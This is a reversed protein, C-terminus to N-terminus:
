RGHVWGGNKFTFQQSGIFKIQGERFLSPKEVPKNSQIPTKLTGPVNPIAKVRNELNTTATNLSAKIENLAKDFEVESQGSDLRAGADTAATGESESIAGSGKLDAFAQLFTKGKIQKLLVSFDRESTGPLNEMFNPFGVVGLKGPHKLAQDIVGIMEQSLKLQKPLAAIDEAQKQGAATGAAKDTNERVTTPGYGIGSSAQAPAVEQLPAYLKNGQEQQAILGSIADLTMPNNMDLKMNPDIGSRQAANKILAQTDNENPPSWTSIIQALTNINRSAYTKLQNITKAKGEEYSGFSQFDNSGVKRMNTTNNNGLNVDGKSAAPQTSKTANPDPLGRLRWRPIQAKTGDPLPVEITKTLDIINALEGQLSVDNPGKVAINGDGLFPWSRGTRTDMKQIGDKGLDVSIVYPDPINAPKNHPALMSLGHVALAPDPNTAIRAALERESMNGGLYGSGKQTIMNHSSLPDASERYGVEPVGILQRLQETADAQQKEKRRGASISALESLSPMEPKAVQAVPQQNSNMLFSLMQGLGASSNDQVPERRKVIDGSLMDAISFGMM